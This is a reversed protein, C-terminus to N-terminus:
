HSCYIPMMECEVTILPINFKINYKKEVGKFVGTMKIYMHYFTQKSEFFKRFTICNTLLVLM